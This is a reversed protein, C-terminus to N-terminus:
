RHGRVRGVERWTEVLGWAAIVLMLGAVGWLFNRNGMPEGHSFVVAVVALALLVAFRLVGRAVAGRVTRADGITRM